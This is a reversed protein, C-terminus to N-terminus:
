ALLPCLNTWTGGVQSISTIGTAFTGHVVVLGSSLYVGQPIGVVPSLRPGITFLTHGAHRTAFGLGDETVSPFVPGTANIEISQSTAPNTLRLKLTGNVIAHDGFDLVFGNDQVAEIFVPFGCAIPRLGGAPFPSEFRTPGDALAIPTAAGLALAAALVYLVRKM